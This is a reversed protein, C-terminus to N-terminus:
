FCRLLTHSNSQAQYTPQIHKGVPAESASKKKTMAKKAKMTKKAKKTEPAEETKATEL